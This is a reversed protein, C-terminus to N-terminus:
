LWCIAKDVEEELEKGVKWLNSRKMGSGHHLPVVVRSVFGQNGIEMLYVKAKWGVEHYEAALKSCKLHKREHAAIKVEKWLSPLSM